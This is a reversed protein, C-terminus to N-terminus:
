VLLVQCAARSCSVSAQGSLGLITRIVLVKGMMAKALDTDNGDGAATSPAVVTVAVTENAAGIISFHLGVASQVESEHMADSADPDTADM